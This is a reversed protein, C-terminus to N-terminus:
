ILKLDDLPSIVKLLDKNTTHLYILTTKIDNHGLLKQIMTVDTGKEILHTAFSHRLSHVGGPKMVGAKTKASQMVEQVSRTSYQSGAASGEFLYGTKKPKYEKAYERLMVLLVPSLGVMRDKKGKAQSIFITMRGSDIQYTRLSVIESVRLGASYGLMLMTKHKKNTVSNIIAAIDDQSFVQPLLRPKKPRPIEFFMKEKHLVQEYYFKLANMRSHVTNEKLKLQDICYLIYRQLQDPTLEKAPKNKLTQLFLHFENCYTRMTSQSYGKLTLINKYESFAKSNEESLHSPRIKLVPSKQPRTFQNQTQLSVTTPGTPQGNKKQLLYKKLSEANIIATEKITDSLRTYNDKALPVYWCSNTKSWRAGAQKQILSQILVNKEFYIGICEQGRHQLPKLIVAEM